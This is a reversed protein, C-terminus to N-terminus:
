SAPLVPLDDLSAIERLIIALKLETEDRCAVPLDGKGDLVALLDSQRYGRADIEARLSEVLRQFTRCARAVEAVFARCSVVVPLPEKPKDYFTKSLILLDGQQEIDGMFAQDGTEFPGDLRDTEQYRKLLYFWSGLYWFHDCAYDTWSLGDASIEIGVCLKCCTFRELNLYYDLLEGPHVAAAEVTLGFTSSDIATAKLHTFEWAAAFYIMPVASIQNM